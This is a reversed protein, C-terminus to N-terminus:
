YSWLPIIQTAGPRVEVCYYTTVERHFAPPSGSPALIDVRLHVRDNESYGVTHIRHIVATPVRPDPQGQAYGDRAGALQGSEYYRRGVAADKREDFEATDPSAAGVSITRDHVEADLIAAHAIRSLEQERPRELDAPVDCPACPM